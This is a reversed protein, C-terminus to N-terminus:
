KMIIELVRYFFVGIEARTASNKPNLNNADDGKVLGAKVLANISARADASILNYDKYSEVLSTDATVQLSKKIELARATYLFMDERTIANMPNFKAANEVIGLARAIGVTEYYYDSTKVDSFNDSFRADLGVTGVLLKIFDARRINSKPAYETASVGNVIGRATLAQVSDDAWGFGAMDKFKYTGFGIGYTGSDAAYFRLEGSNIDYLSEALTDAIGTTNLKCAILNKVSAAESATPTYPVSLRVRATEPWNYSKSDLWMFLQTCPRNDVLTITDPMLGSPTEASSIEVALLSTESVTTGALVNNPVTITGVPTRISVAFNQVAMNFRNAPLYLLYRTANTTAPMTLTMDTGQAALKLMDYEAASLSGYARRNAAQYYATIQGNVVGPATPPATTTGGTVPGTATGARTVVFHDSSTSFFGDLTQRVTIIHDGPTLNYSATYSWYGSVPVVTGVIAGDVYITLVAGPFAGRGAIEFRNEEVTRPTLVVPKPLTLGADSSLTITRVAGSAPIYGNKVQVPYISHTGDQLPARLTCQWSDGTAVTYGLETDGEYVTILAGAVGGTGAVIVPSKQTDAATLVPVTILKDATLVSGTPTTASPQSQIPPLEMSVAMAGFSSFALTLAALAAVLKRFKM